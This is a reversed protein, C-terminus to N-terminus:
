PRGSLVLKLVSRRSASVIDEPVRQGNTIYSIPMKMLAMQDIMAGKRRTEDLKTFVCTQPKLMSFHDAVERMDTRDTAASMVLHCSIELSGQMFRCLDMMRDRDLHSRGATDILVIEKDRMKEVATQLDRPSFASLCPLGMIGAYTRLQDVGGIRYSDVSIVGVSKKQQLSLVAALKAITTTKGVGTPGIFASLRSSGNSSSFPDSIRIMGSVTRLVRKTIEEMPLPRAPAKELSRIMIKRAQRESVGATVLKAYWNLSEPFRQLFEPLGGGQDIVLLMDKISFLGANLDDVRLTGCRDSEGRGARFGDEPERNGPDSVSPEQAELGDRFEVAAPKEMAATVEFLNRHDASKPLRRTSLIMADPGIDEKIRSIAEQISRAKYRRIAM